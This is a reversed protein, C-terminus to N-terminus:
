WDSQVIMWNYKSMIGIVVEETFNYTATTRLSYLAFIVTFCRLELIRWCQEWKITHIWPVLSSKWVQILRDVNMVPFCMQSRVWSRVNLGTVPCTRRLIFWKDVTSCPYNVPPSEDIAIETNSRATQSVQNKFHKERVHQSLQVANDCNINCVTCM